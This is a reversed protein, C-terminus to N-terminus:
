AITLRVAKTHVAVTGSAMALELTGTGSRTYTRGVPSGNASFSAQTSPTANFGFLVLDLFATSADQGYVLVLAAPALESAIAVASTSVTATRVVDSIERSHALVMQVLRDGMEEVATSPFTGGTPLDTPQLEPVALMIVLTEGSAPATTATLTGAAGTGAGTLTYDTGELWLTEAGNADRLVAEVHGNDLFTFSTSFAVTPPSGAYSVRATTSSVTM